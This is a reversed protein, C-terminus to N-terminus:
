DSVDSVLMLSNLYQVYSDLEAGGATEIVNSLKMNETYALKTGTIEAGEPISSVDTTMGVTSDATEYTYLYSDSTLDFEMVFFDYQSASFGDTYYGLGEDYQLVPGTLLEWYANKSYIGTPAGNDNFQLYNNDDGYIVSIKTHNGNVASFGSVNFAGSKGASYYNSAVSEDEFDINGVGYQTSTPPALQASAVVTVFSCLSIIIIFLVTLRKKM